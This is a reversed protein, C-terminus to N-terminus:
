PKAYPGYQLIDWTQTLLTHIRSNSPATSELHTSTYVNNFDGIEKDIEM